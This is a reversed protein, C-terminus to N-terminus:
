LLGALTEIAGQLQREVHMSSIFFRLRAAREEV